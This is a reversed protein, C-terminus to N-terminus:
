FVYGLRVQPMILMFPAHAAEDPLETGTRICGVAGPAPCALPVAISRRDLTPGQNLFAALAIAFGLHLDGFRADVGLENLVFASVGRSVAQDDEFLLDSTQSNKKVEGSLDDSAAVVWGGAALRATLAWRSSLRHRYGVGLAVLPGHELMSDKLQYSVGPQVEYLTRDFQSSLRLYGTSLELSLGFAFRYAGRIGLLLGHAGPHDPCHSCHQEAGSRMTPSFGYGGYAELVIDGAIPRPWRPHDPDIALVLEVPELHGGTAIPLTRQQSHYGPESGRLAYQGIPLRGQWQGTAVEVGDISLKASRPELRVRLPAGLPGSSLRVVATQGQVVVVARPASGVDGKLTWVVHKGPALTGEWPTRGVPVDDVFIQSGAAHPDDVQLIGVAALPELKADLRITKGVPVDLVREFTVYGNKMVRVAREGPLVRIPVTLPLTGRARGDVVVTGAVNASVWLNGVLQRLESMAPGIAARDRETLQQKFDTLLQEYMALAELAVVLRHLCIAANSSNQVSPFLEHSRLFLELAREVDGASFLDVGRRFLDKAREIAPPRSTTQKPDVQNRTDDDAWTTAALGTLAILM